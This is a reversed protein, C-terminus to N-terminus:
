TAFTQRRQRLELMENLVLAGIVMAGGTLTAASPQEGAGLWAWTVGFLVELLGLM